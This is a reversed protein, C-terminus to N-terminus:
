RPLALYIARCRGASGYREPESKDEVGANDIGKGTLQYIGRDNELCGEACAASLGELLEERTLKPFDGNGGNFVRIIESPTLRWNGTLSSVSTFQSLTVKIDRPIRPKRPDAIIISERPM